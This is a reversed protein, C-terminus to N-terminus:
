NTDRSYEFFIFILAADIARSLRTTPAEAKAGICVAFLLVLSLYLVSSIAADPLIFQRGIPIPLAAGSVMMVFTSRSDKISVLSSHIAALVPIECLRTSVPSSFSLVRPAFAARCARSMAPSEASSKSMTMQAVDDGSSMNPSAVAMAASIPQVLAVTPKSRVAAHEPNRRADTVAPCNRDHGPVFNCFTKTTPASAKLRQTSQSSRLEHIKNPSPAPAM